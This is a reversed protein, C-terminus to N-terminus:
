GTPRQLRAQRHREMAFVLCWATLLVLALVFNATLGVLALLVVNLVGGLILAHTRGPFSGLAVRSVCGGSSRRGPWSPPRSARSATPRRIATSSSCTRSSPTSRSIGVGATFPAALM